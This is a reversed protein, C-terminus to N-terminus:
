RRRRIMALGGMSLLMLTAPEPVPVPGVVTGGAVSGNIVTATIEGPALDSEVFLKATNSFPSLGQSFVFHVAPDTAIGLKDVATPIIAFGPTDPTIYGAQTGAELGAFSALAFTDLTTNSFNSVMYVYLYSSGDTYAASQVYVSDIVPGVLETSVIDDLLEFGAYDTSFDVEVVSANAAVGMCSIIALLFLQRKMM